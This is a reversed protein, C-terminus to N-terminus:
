KEERRGWNELSYAVDEGFRQSIIERAQKVTLPAAAGSFLWAIARQERLEFSAKDDTM